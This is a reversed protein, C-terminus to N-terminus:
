VDCVCVSLVRGEKSEDKTDRRKELLNSIADLMSVAGSMYKLGAHASSKSVISLSSASSYGASSAAEGACIFRRSFSAPSNKRHQSFAVAPRTPYTHPVNAGGPVLVRVSSVIDVWSGSPVARQM